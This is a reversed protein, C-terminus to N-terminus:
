NEVPERSRYAHFLSITGLPTMLRTTEEVQEFGAGRILEPLHGRVHDATTAFGDLLQVGLFAFQMLPDHARGWDAIHLQGGPKLMVRMADLARRKSARDLHHLVLLRQM